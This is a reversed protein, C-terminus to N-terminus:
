TIVRSEPSRVERSWGYGTRGRRSSPSATSRYRGTPAIKRRRSREEGSLKRSVANPSPEGFFRRGTGRWTLWVEVSLSPVQPPDKGDGRVKRARSGRREPRDGHGA